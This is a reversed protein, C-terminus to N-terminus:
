DQGGTDKKPPTSTGAQSSEEEPDHGRWGHRIWDASREEIEAQGHRAMIEKALAREDDTVVDVTLVSDGRKVAEAYVNSYTHKGHVNFMSNFFNDISAHLSANKQSQASRSTTASFEDDPNLQVKSRSFGSALLDYKASRANQQEEYVGIITLEM